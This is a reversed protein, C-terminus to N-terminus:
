NTSVDHVQTKLRLVTVSNRSFTYNFRTAGGVGAIQSDVPVVKTPCALSNEDTVRDSTLVSATGSLIRVKGVVNIMTKKAEENPNVAKIIIDGTATDKSTVYYLPDHQAPKLPSSDTVDFLLEDDLYAKINAGSVVVKIQYTQGITITGATSTLIATNGNNNKQIAHLTNNWGGLNLDYFNNGDIYGFYIMMGEKGSIKQANLTLTYNSWDSSGAVIMGPTSATDTENYSLSWTGSKVSWNTVNAPFDDSLLIRDDSQNTVVVSDYKVATNYTGIGIKGIIKNAAPAIRNFGTLTTPLFINGINNSFMKQVYYSPTGYVRSSNFVIADPNWTRDNANVFLPAYSAMRVIDSNREMGTMFVAEGLAANLNGKGCDLNTTVAYEGVYIRPGKRDYNDYKHANNIFWQTSRYYHEDVIEVPYSYQWSPTDTGWAEVNGITYIEPYKEKIAKYFRIYREGYLNSRNDQSDYQNNENGIEIYKLHFPAAHGNAARKAGYPTTADGNAYEIADLVDQIWSDLEDLSINDKHAIGINVVYLPEAGLDECFQLFEHYGMGDTTRYGWLNQHGPRAEIKGITNKWRFANAMVDGEVFCGGPFRVFRPKMEKVMTALDQRLGNPRNNFTPPFLSVVDFWVSGVTNLALVFRANSDTGNAVITTTYKQWDTGIGSVATQGYVAQGDASQLSVTIKGTFESSAKAFFSLYYQSGATVRIGWYGENAISVSGAPDATTVDVRLAKSQASNLPNDSDLTITGEATGTLSLSWYKPITAEEFSRNRILEAYLGGDAAHNIDEFFIGYLNPSINIGPHEADIKLELAAPLEQNCAM